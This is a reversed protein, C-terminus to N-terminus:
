IGRVRATDTRATLDEGMMPCHRLIQRRQPDHHYDRILVTMEEGLLDANRWPLLLRYAMETVVTLLTAVAMKTGTDKIDMETALDPTATRPLLM